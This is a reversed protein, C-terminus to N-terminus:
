RDGLRDTVGACPQESTLWAKSARTSRVSASSTPWGGALQQVAGVGAAGGARLGEVPQERAGAAQDGLPHELAGAAAAYRGDDAAGHQVVAGAPGGPHDGRHLVEGRQALDLGAPGPLLAEEERKGLAGAVEGDDGIGGPQDNVDGGRARRQGAPRGSPGRARRRSRSWGSSRRYSVLAGGPHQAAAAGAGGRQPGAVRVPAHCQSSAVAM